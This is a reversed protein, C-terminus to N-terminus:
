KDKEKKIIEDINVKKSLVKDYMEELFTNRFLQYYVFCDKTQTQRFIRDESQANEGSVWSFSNFILNNAVQLNLGVGSSIVNGIFLRIEDNNKFEYEAKDKQKTTMKGNYVVCKGRFHERILEIEVDFTCMIILKSNEELISEALEITNPIMEEALYQRLLSSEIVQKYQSKNEVESNDELNELYEDWLKEYKQRQMEDLDYRIVNVEKKVMNKIESTLRRLYIHKTKEKLEDLNSAGDCKTVHRANKMLFQNLFDYDSESLEEYKKGIKKLFVQTWKWKEGKLFITEANCYRRVYHNWDNTIEANILKLINYFNYPRNSVPTGSLLFVYNPKTRKLFDNIIKYRGSTSNCLKHAEDIIVLDFGSKYLQSDEMAKKILEKNSSVKMKPVGDEILTIGDTSYKPKKKWAIEKREIINGNEDVEKIKNYLIEQPVTYFNDLIDYNAIVYKKDKWFSGSIIQIDEEDVYNSLENKWNTKLSAPCIILAKKCKSELMAIIAEITKGYGQSDALIAKKRKLLFQIAPVQFDKIKISKNKSISDYYDINVEVDDYPEELFQTNIGKKSLFALIPKEQRQSYKIYAAYTTSTEGIYYGMYIRKPIYKLKWDEQKKEAYWDSLEVIKDIFIPNFAHNKLIFEIKFENLERKYLSVEKKLEYIFPNSGDYDKLIDYAKSAENIKKLSKM